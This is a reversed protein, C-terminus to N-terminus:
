ISIFRYLLRNEKTIIKAQGLLGEKYPIKKQYHTTLGKPLHVELYMEGERNLSPIHSLTGEIYGFENEPFSFLKIIVKQGKEVKSSPYESLRIRGMIIQSHPLITILPQDISVKHNPSWSRNLAVYGDMPSRISHSEFWYSIAQELELLEEKLLVLISQSDIRNATITNSLDLLAIQSDIKQLEINKVKKQINQYESLLQQSSSNGKQQAQAYETSLTKLNEKLKQHKLTLLKEKAQLNKYHTNLKFPSSASKSTRTNKILSSSENTYNQYHTALSGLQTYTNKTLVQLLESIKKEQILKKMLKVQNSLKEIEEYNATNDLLVLLQGKSVKDKDAVLFSKIYGSRKSELTIAPEKNIIEIPVSITDPFQIFWAIFFALGIFSALMMMGSKLLWTPIESFIEQSHKSIEIEKSKNEEM